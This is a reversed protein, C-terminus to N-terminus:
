EGRLGYFIYKSWIANDQFFQFPPLPLCFPDMILDESSGSDAGSDSGSDSESDCGPESDFDSKYLCDGVASYVVCQKLEFCPTM